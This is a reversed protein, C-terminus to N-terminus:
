FFGPQAPGLIIGRMWYDRERLRSQVQIEVRESGKSSRFINGHGARLSGSRPGNHFFGRSPHFERDLGVRTRLLARIVPGVMKRERVRANRGKRDVQPVVIVALGGAVAVFDELFVVLVVVM